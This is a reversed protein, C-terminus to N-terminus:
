QESAFARIPRVSALVTKENNVSSSAINWVYACTADAQDQTSSWYTGTLPTFGKNASGDAASSKQWAVLERLESISPLFWDNQSSGPAKYDKCARAAPASPDAALILATNSRGAGVNGKEADEKIGVIYGYAESNPNAWQFDTSGPVNSRPIDAKAVELYHYIEGTVPDVIGGPDTHFIIGGGPGEEGVQYFARVMDVTVPNRQGAKVNLTNNGKAYLFVGQLKVYAKIEINWTGAPVTAKYSTAGKQAEFVLTRGNGSFVIRHELMEQQEPSALNLPYPIKDVSRSGSGSFNISVTGTVGGASPDSCASIALAFIFLVSFLKIIRNSPTNVSSLKCSKM